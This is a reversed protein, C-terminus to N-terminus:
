FKSYFFRGGGTLFVVALFVLNGALVGRRGTMRHKRRAVPTEQLCFFMSGVVFLLFMLLALRAMDIELYRGIWTIEPMQFSTTFEEALPGFACRAIARCMALAEEGTEAEIAEYGARKLNIVVFSRINAEDELVLVKKM